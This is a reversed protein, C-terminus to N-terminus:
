LSRRTKLARLSDVAEAATIEHRELRDLIAAREQALASEDAVRDHERSFGAASLAEELRARVTPYSLGLAREMDKVNGRARLFM